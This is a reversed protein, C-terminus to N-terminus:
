TSALSIRTTKSTQRGAQKKIHCKLRSYLIGKKKKKKKRIM